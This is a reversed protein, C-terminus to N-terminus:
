ASRLKESVVRSSEGPKMTVGYLCDAVEMTRKQHSVVLLQAEARFEGYTGTSQVSASGDRDAVQHAM